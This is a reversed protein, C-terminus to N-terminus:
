AAGQGFLPRQDDDGSVADGVGLYRGGDEIVVLVTGGAADALAHAAQTNALLLQSKVGDESFQVSKCEARFTVRDDSAIIEVADRVAKEIDNRIDGLMTEQEHKSMSHWPLVAVKFRYTSAKILSGLLFDRAAEIADFRALAEKDTTNM